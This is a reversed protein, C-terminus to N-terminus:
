GHVGFSRHFANQACGQLHAWAAPFKQNIAPQRSLSYSLWINVIRLRDGVAFTLGRLKRGSMKRGRSAQALHPRGGGISHAGLKM